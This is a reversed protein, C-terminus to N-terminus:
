QCAVVVPTARSSGEVGLAGMAPTGGPCSLTVASVGPTVDKNAVDPETLLWGRSKLVQATSDMTRATVLLLVLEILTVWPPLATTVAVTVSIRPLMIVPTGKVQLEDWVEVTPAALVPLTVVGLAPP